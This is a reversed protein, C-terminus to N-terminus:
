SGAVGGAGAASSVCLPLGPISARAANRARNVTPAACDTTPACAARPSPMMDSALRERESTFEERLAELGLREQALALDREVLELALGDQDAVHCGRSARGRRPVLKHVLELLLVPVLELDQLEGTVLEAPLLPEATGLDRVRELMNSRPVPKLGLADEHLLTLHVAGLSVWDELAQAGHQGLAVGREFVLELVRHASLVVRAEARRRVCRDVRGVRDPVKLEPEDRRVARRELAVVRMGLLVLLLDSLIQLLKEGSRGELRASSRTHASKGTRPPPPSQAAAVVTSSPLRAFSEGRLPSPHGAARRQSASRCGDGYWITQQPAGSTKTAASGALERHGAADAGLIM